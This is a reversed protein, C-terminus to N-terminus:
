AGGKLVRDFFAAVHARTAAVAHEPRVTGLQERVTEPPVAGQAALSPLLASADTYSGHRSGRLTVEDRWATSNKWLAAWSPQRHHDGSDPSETGMLLFPRDLGDRAVTSLESGSGGPGPFELTGDMNVGARIRRDDHMTQLATFGGASHGAMGVRRLDMANTLGPPLSVRRKADGLTDLVFRTDDVRAKMAKRLVAGIDTGPKQALEPLVSKALRGGPLAVESSDYTHDVTVVVYGRSALDEVLGTNWTRPDGLGASYLVVPNRGSNRAVPADVRAHTRTAAWDAKGAPVGYNLSGAGTASGFHAAAREDMHPATRGGRGREAPYWFSVMVERPGREPQWPDQRKDDVLHRATTGVAYPGTPAPLQGHPRGTGAGEHATAEYAAAKPATTGLLSTVALVGAAIVARRKLGREYAPM